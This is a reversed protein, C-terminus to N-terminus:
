TLWGMLERYNFHKGVAETIWLPEGSLGRCTSPRQIDAHSPISVTNTVFDLGLETLRWWGIRNSGDVREGKAAEILGWHVAKVADGGANNHLCSPIHVWDRERGTKRYMDCLVRAAVGPFPTHYVDNWSGCCPCEVGGTWRGQEVYERAEGVTREDLCPGDHGRPRRCRREVGPRWTFWAGCIDDNM